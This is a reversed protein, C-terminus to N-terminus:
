QWVNVCTLLTKVLIQFTEFLILFIIKAYFINKDKYMIIVLIQFSFSQKLKTQSMKGDQLSM